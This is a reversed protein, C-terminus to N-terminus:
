KLFLGESVIDMKQAISDAMFKTLISNIKNSEGLIDEGIDVMKKLINFRDMAESQAM